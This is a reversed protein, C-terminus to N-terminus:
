YPMSLDENLDVQTWESQPVSGALPLKGAKNPAM